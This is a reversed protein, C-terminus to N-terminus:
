QRASLMTDANAAVDLPMLHVDVNRKRGGSEHQKLGKRVEQEALTRGLVAAPLAVDKVTRSCGPQEALVFAVGVVGAEYLIVDLDRRPQSHVRSQAILEKTRGAFDVPM